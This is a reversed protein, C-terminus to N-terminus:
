VCSTCACMCVAACHTVHAGGGAATPSCATWMTGTWRSPLLKGQSAVSAARRSRRRGVPLQVRCTWLDFLRSHCEAITQEYNLCVLVPRCAVQQSM